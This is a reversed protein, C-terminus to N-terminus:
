RAPRPEVLPEVFKVTPGTVVIQGAQMAAAFSTKQLSIDDLAARTLSLTADPKDAM